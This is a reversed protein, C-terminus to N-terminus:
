WNNHYKIQCAERLWEWACAWSQRSEMRRQKARLAFLLGALM